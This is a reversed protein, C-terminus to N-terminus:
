HPVPIEKGGMWRPFTTMIFGFIFSPFLGFVMLYIHAAGPMISWTIPHGAVGYRTVMEVLWWLMVAITQLAGGLFMVRHPAATFNTWIKALKTM